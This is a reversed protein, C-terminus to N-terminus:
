NVYLTKNRAGSDSREAPRHLITSWVGNIIFEVKWIAPSSPKMPFQKNGLKHASKRFENWTLTKILQSVLHPIDFNYMNTSLNQLVFVPSNVFIPKSAPWSGAVVEDTQKSRPCKQLLVKSLRFSISTCFKQLRYKAAEQNTAHSFLQGSM